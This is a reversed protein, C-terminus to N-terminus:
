RRAMAGRHHVDLRVRGSDRLRVPDNVKQRARFRAGSSAIPKSSSRTSMSGLRDLSGPLFNDLVVDADRILDLVLEAWGPGVPRRSRKKNRNISRFYRKGDEDFPPGWGRTEDGEGPREVKIVDAGLDGLIMSCVPGALVRSLDLVKLKM